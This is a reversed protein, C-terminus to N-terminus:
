FQLIIGLGKLKKDAKIQLILTRNIELDYNTFGGLIQTRQTKKDEAYKTRPATFEDERM